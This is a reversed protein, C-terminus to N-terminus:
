PKVLPTKFNPIYGGYSKLSLLWYRGDPAAKGPIAGGQYTGRGGEGAALFKCALLPHALFHIFSM